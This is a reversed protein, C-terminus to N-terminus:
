GKSFLGSYLIDFQVRSLVNLNVLISINLPFDSYKQIDTLFRPSRKAM